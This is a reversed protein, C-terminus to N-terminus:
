AVQEALRQKFEIVAEPAVRRARGIKVSALERTAILRWITVESLRLRGAVEPVTLLETAEVGADVADTM